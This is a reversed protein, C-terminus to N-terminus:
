KRHEASAAASGLSSDTFLAGSGQISAAALEVERPQPTAAFLEGVSPSAPVTVTVAFGTEAVRKCEQCRCATQEDWEFSGM